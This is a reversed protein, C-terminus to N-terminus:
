EGGQATAYALQRRIVAATVSRADASREDRQRELTEVIDCLLSYIHVTWGGASVNQNMDIFDRVFAVQDIVVSSDTWAPPVTVAVPLGKALSIKM